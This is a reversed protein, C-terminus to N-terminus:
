KLKIKKYQIYCGVGFIAIIISLVIIFKSNGTNPIINDTQTDDKDEPKETNNDDGPTEPENVDGSDGPEYKAFTVVVHKDETMNIFKNLTVTGDANAEFNIASGNVKIEKVYYGEEPTVIIDKVSDKGEGVEECIEKGEDTITGGIGEVETTIIYSKEKYWYTVEINQTNEITGEWNNTKEVFEYKELVKQSMETTYTEGVKKTQIVDEDLKKNTGYELHHTIVQVKQEKKAFIVVIHKDETMNIFKNLTVTGDANAEFNIASGNVKIEKVYYGEEPTVIIDKVSDKGEGVEECIEKGEDTITGGIGEVETTIIYSKEKYWYTVEINQTNEITGEWNNTKEVFEYKELVKQSMETTYTEGVKKTQIVDEDLKKNTGYELHHTIVQVEQEEGPDETDKKAFTVVIHKDETMNTFKDLMYTGDDNPEFEITDNNVKIEKIYYGEYPTVIIDKVSDKGEKVEECIEKGEDTITGGTGEVKTTIIYSKEKYWYTVEIDDTNEITGEWNDTKKVFEYENPVEESITTTYTDGVEKTQIVDKALERETEYELHHTIVKASEKPLLWSDGELTLEANVPLCVVPRIGEYNYNPTGAITRGGVSILGDNVSSGHGDGTPAALWYGKWVNLNYKYPFYLDDNLVDDEENLRVNFYWEENNYYGYKNIDYNIKEYKKQEMSSLLMELTAAGTAQSGEMGSAFYSWINPDLLVATAKASQSALTGYQSSKLKEIMFKKAIEDSIDELGKKEAFNSSHSWGAAYDNYDIILGANTPLKSIPVYDAAILFVNTGDNYFIKWDNTIDGDDNLDVNYEAWDGYNEPKVKSALTESSTSSSEDTLGIVNKYYVLISFIFVSIALIIIVPFFKKNKLHVKVKDM